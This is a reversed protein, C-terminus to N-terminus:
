YKYNRTSEEKRLHKIGNNQPLESRKKSANQETKKLIHDADKSPEHQTYDKRRTM